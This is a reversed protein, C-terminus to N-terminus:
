ELLCIKYVGKDDRNIIYPAAQWPGLAQMGMVIDSVLVDGAKVM